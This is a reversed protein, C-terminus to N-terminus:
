GQREKGFWVVKVTRKEKETHRLNERKSKSKREM